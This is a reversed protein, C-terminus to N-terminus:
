VVADRVQPQFEGLRPVAERGVADLLSPCPAGITAHAWVLNCMEQAKFEGIRAAASAGLTDFLAPSWLSRVGPIAGRGISPQGFRGAGCGRHM